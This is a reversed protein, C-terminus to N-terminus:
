KLPEIVAWGWCVVKAVSLESEGELVIGVESVL